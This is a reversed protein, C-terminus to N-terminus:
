KKYYNLTDGIKNQISMVKTLAAVFDPDTTETPTGFEYNVKKNVDYVPLKGYKFKVPKPIEIFDKLNNDIKTTIKETFNKSDKKYLDVINKKEEQLFVSLIEKLTTTDISTPTFDVIKSTFKSHNDKIFKIVPKYENYFNTSNFGNLPLQTFTKGAMKGDSQEDVIFNLSDLATTLFQRRDELLKISSKDVMGDIYKEVFNKIYPQLIKESNSHLSSPIVGNLNLIETLNNSKIATVMGVKFGRTQFSLDNSPNYEGLLEIIEDSGGTKVNYTYTKRYTNSFFLSVPKEGYLKLLENYTNDYLNFYADTIEFPLYILPPNYSMTTGVQSGIFKDEVGKKAGASDANSKPVKNTRSNLSTLFEKTFDESSKGDIKSTITSREDYMETNAFFNSSLANQLREVPKDLGQGGIFAIQMTVNAIMPQVGIGEPNLDWVNEEFTINVDRVIVKSHYFDGIRM